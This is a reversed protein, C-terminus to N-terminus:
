TSFYKKPLDFALYIKTQPHIKKYYDESALQLVLLKGPVQNYEKM